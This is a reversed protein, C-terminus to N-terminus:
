RLNLIARQHALLRSLCNSLAEHRAELIDSQEIQADAIRDILEGGFASRFAAERRIYNKVEFRAITCMWRILEEDPQQDVYTFSHLKRWAVLYTSQIVEDIAYRDCGVLAAIFSRVRREHRAILMVFQDQPLPVASV